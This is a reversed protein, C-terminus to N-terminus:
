GKKAMTQKKMISDAKRPSNNTVRKASTPRTKTISKTSDSKILNNEPRTGPISMRQQNANVRGRKIETSAVGTNDSENKQFPLDGINIENNYKDDLEDAAVSQSAVEINIDVLDDDLADDGLIKLKERM